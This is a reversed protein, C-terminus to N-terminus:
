CQKEMRINWISVITRGVDAFCSLTEPGSANTAGNLTSLFVIQLRSGLHVHKTVVSRFSRHYWYFDFLFICSGCFFRIEVGKLGLLYRKSTMLILLKYKTMTILFFAGNSNKHFSFFLIKTNKLFDLKEFRYSKEFKPTKYSFVHM